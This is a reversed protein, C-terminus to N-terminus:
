LNNRRNNLGNGDIHDILKTKETEGMVLRHMKIVKEGTRKRPLMVGYAYSLRDSQEPFHEWWTYGKVLDYDAEDVTAFKDSNTLPIQIPM